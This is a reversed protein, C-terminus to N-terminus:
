YTYFYAVFTRLLNGYLINTVIRFAPILGEITKATDSM